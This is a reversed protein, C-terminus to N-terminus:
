TRKKQLDHILHSLSPEDLDHLVDRLKEDDSRGPAFGAGYTQRLTSVLTNGHKKSIKGNKDRHRGDLGTQKAMVSQTPPADSPPPANEMKTTTEVVKTEATKAQTAKAQTETAARAAGFIDAGAEAKAEAFLDETAEVFEACQTRVEHYAMLAAKLSAKAVPHAREPSQRSLLLAAAAGTLAGLAFGLPKM